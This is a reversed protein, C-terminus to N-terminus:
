TLFKDTTNTSKLRVYIVAHHIVFVNKTIIHDNIQRRNRFLHMEMEKWFCTSVIEAMLGDDPNPETLLLGISRLVTSINLSPQWAGQVDTNTIWVCFQQYQPSGKHVLYNM